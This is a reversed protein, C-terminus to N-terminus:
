LALYHVLQKTMNVLDDIRVWEDPQHASQNDFTAPGVGVFQNTHLAQAVFGMDTSAAAGACVIDSDQYGHVAALARRMKVAYRSTMDAAYPYCAHLFRTEVDLARSRAKGQAIAAEIERVVEEYREEPLYRRNV